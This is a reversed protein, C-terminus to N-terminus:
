PNRAFLYNVVNLLGVGFWLLALTAWGDVAYFIAALADLFVVLLYLRAM